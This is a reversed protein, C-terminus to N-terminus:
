CPTLLYQCPCVLITGNSSCPVKDWSMDVNKHIADKFGKTAINMSYYSM